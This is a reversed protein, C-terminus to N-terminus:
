IGEAGNTLEGAYWMENTPEFGLEEYLARGDPSAHLVLRAIREERAWAIVREMLARAVGRRRWAPETYVNVVIAEPGTLLEGDEPRPRPLLNRRQVGAGGVIEGPREDPSALWGIYEGAAVWAALTRETAEILPQRARESLTGMDRFMMARHRAMVAADGVGARRITFRDSM